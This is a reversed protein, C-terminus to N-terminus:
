EPIDEHKILVLKGSGDSLQGIMAVTYIGGDELTTQLDPVIGSTGSIGTDRVRITYTGADVPTFSESNEKYSVDEVILETDPDIFGMTVAPADPVLHAVRIHASGTNPTRLNDEYLVVDLADKTEGIVFLTYRGDRAFTITEETLVDTLGTRTIKTDYSGAVIEQYVNNIVDYEGTAILETEIVLNTIPQAPSANILLIGATELSTIGTTSTTAKEACGVIGLSIGIFLLICILKIRAM